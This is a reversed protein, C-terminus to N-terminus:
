GIVPGRTGPAVVPLRGCGREAMLDAAQRLTHGPHVLCPPGHVLARLPQEPDLRVDFLERQTVVGMVCGDDEVLPFGHHVTEPAGSGLWERAEGVTMDARLTAPSPTMCAEVRVTDLFDIGYEEPVRVGRRA